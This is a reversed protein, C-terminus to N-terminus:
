LLPLPARHREPLPIPLVPPDGTTGLSEWHESVRGQGEVGAGGGLDHQVHATAGADEGEERRLGAGALDVRHLGAGHGLVGLHTGVRCWYLGTHGLLAWPEGDPAM